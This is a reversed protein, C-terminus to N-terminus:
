SSRWKYWGAVIKDESTLTFAQGCSAILHVCDREPESVRLNDRQEWCLLVFSYYRM